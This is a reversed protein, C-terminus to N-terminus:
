HHWTAVGTQLPAGGHLSPLREVRTIDWTRIPCRELKQRLFSFPSVLHFHSVGWSVSGHLIFNWYPRVAQLLDM